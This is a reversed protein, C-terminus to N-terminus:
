TEDEDRDGREQGLGIVGREFADVFDDALVCFNWRFDKLEGLPDGVVVAAREVSGETGDQRFGDAVFFGSPFFAEGDSVEGFGGSVVFEGGAERFDMAEDAGAFGDSERGEEFFRASGCCRQASEFFEM